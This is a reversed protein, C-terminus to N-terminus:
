AFQFQIQLCFSELHFSWFDYSEEQLLSLPDGGQIPCSPCPKPQNLARDDPDQQQPVAVGGM